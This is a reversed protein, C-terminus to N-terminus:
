LRLKTNLRRQWVQNNAKATQVLPSFRGLEFIIWNVLSLPFQLPRAIDLFLVVRYGDTDNRVQHHFTDDFILSKGEQWHVRQGAVQIWCNQSPEPVQLALHYRILGKHKGYHEPIHKGPALISFFAVKMGPIKRILEWTQPCRQCNDDANYGLVHFFYTKWGDDQTIQQQRPMIQQYNPLELAYELVQEMEKRIVQWNAEIEQAWPFQETEFFVSDGIKSYAPIANWIAQIAPTKVVGQVWDTM